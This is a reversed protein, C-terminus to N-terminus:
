KAFHRATLNINIDTNGQILKNTTATERRTPDSGQAM